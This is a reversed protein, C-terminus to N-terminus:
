RLRDLSKILKEDKRIGRLALLLAFFAIVPLFMGIWLTGGSDPYHSWFSSLGVYLWFLLAILLLINIWILGIQRKRTKFLFITVLSLLMSGAVLAIALFNNSISKVDNYDKVVEAPMSTVDLTPLKYVDVNFMALMLLAAVLLWVTQIRQIM